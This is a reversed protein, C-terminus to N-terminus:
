PSFQNKRRDPEGQRDGDDVLRDSQDSSGLSLASLGVLMPTCHASFRTNAAMECAKVERVGRARHQVQRRAHHERAREDRRDAQAAAHLLLLRDGAPGRVRRVARDRTDLGFNFRLRALLWLPNQAIM